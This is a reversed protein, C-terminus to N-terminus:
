WWSQWMVETQLPPCCSLTPRSWSDAQSESAPTMVKKRRLCSLTLEEEQLHSSAIVGEWQLHFFSSSFFPSSFFSSPFISSSFLSSTVYRQSSLFLLRRLWRFFAAVGSRLEGWLVPLSSIRSNAEAVSPSADEAQSNTGPLRLRLYGSFDLLSIRVCRRRRFCLCAGRVQILEQFPLQLPRLEPIAEQSLLLSQHFAQQLAQWPPCWCWRRLMLM